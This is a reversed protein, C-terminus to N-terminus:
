QFDRHVYSDILLLVVKQEEISLTSVLDQLNGSISNKLIGSFFYDANCKLVSCLKIINIPKPFYKGRELNSIQTDSIELYEALDSQKLGLQKRRHMIRSGIIIRLEKETM